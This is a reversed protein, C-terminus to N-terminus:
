RALRAFREYPTLHIYTARAYTQPYARDVAEQVAKWASVVAPHAAGRRTNADTLGGLIWQSNQAIAMPSGATIECLHHRFKARRADYASEVVWEDDEDMELCDMWVLETARNIATQMLFLANYEPDSADTTSQGVQCLWIDLHDASPDTAHFARRVDDQHTAAIQNAAHEILWALDTTVSAHTSQM